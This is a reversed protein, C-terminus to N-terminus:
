VNKFKHAAGDLWVNTDQDALALLVAGTAIGLPAPPEITAPVRVLMGPRAMADLVARFVRQSDVAPEAFGPLLATAVGATM